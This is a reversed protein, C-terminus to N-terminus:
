FDMTGLCCLCRMTGMPEGLMSMAEVGVWSVHAAGLGFSQMAQPQMNTEIKNVLNRLAHAFGLPLSRTVMAKSVLKVMLILVM